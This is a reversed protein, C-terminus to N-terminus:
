KYIEAEVLANLAKFSLDDLKKGNVFFTPTGTVGLEKADQMDIEMMEVFKPDNMDERLKTIDLGEIQVIYNWLLHPKPNGHEGWINQSAFVMNLTEEYKGQKRAAELIKVVMPANKHNPMYRVVLQIEKNYDHLVQKVAPHFAACSGCEPDLFEVVIVNKENQGFKMSHERVYPAANLNVSSIKEELKKSEVTKYAYTAAIFIVIASVLAFVVVSKNKM